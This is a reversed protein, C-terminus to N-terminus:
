PCGVLPWGFLPLVRYLVRCWWTTHRREVCPTPRHWSRVCPTLQRDARGRPSGIAGGAWSADSSSSPGDASCSWPACALSMGGDCIAAHCQWATYGGTSPALRGGECPLWALSDHTHRSAWEPRSVDCRSACTGLGHRCCGCAAAGMTGNGVSTSRLLSALDAIGMTNNCASTPSFM